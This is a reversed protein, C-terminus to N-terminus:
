MRLPVWCFHCCREPQAWVAVGAQASSKCSLHHLGGHKLRATDETCASYARHQQRHREGCSTQGGTLMQM